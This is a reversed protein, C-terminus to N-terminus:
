QLRRLIERNVSRQEEWFAAQEQRVQNLAQKSDNRDALWEARSVFTAHKVTSPMHLEQAKAHDAFETETTLVKEKLSEVVVRSAWRNDGCAAAVAFVAAFIPLTIAVFDKAANKLKTM